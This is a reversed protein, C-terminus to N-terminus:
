HPLIPCGPTTLFSQYGDGSSATIAPENISADLIFFPYEAKVENQDNEGVQTLLDDAEERLQVEM